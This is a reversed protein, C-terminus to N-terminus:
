GGAGQLVRFAILEGVSTAIGALASGATFVSLATLWVAKAGYRQSAWSAVPIVSAFGLLYGTLVWQITAFDTHFQGALTRTAVNVVTADVIALLTGIVVAGCVAILQRDFTPTTTASNTTSTM